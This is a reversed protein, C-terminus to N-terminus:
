EQVAQQGRRDWAWKTKRNLQKGEESDWRKNGKNDRVWRRERKARSEEGM